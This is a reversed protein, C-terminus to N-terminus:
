YRRLNELEYEYYAIHRNKEICYFWYYDDSKNDFILSVHNVEDWYYEGHELKM